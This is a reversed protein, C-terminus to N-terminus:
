AIRQRRAKERMADRIWKSRDTDQQAAATTIAEALPKPVWLTVLHSRHSQPPKTPQKSM